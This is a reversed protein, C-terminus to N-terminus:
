RLDDEIQARAVAAERGGLRRSKLEGSVLQLRYLAIRDLDDGASGLLADILDLSHTTLIVQIGRRVAALMASASQRIAAPHLHVEPEELLVLGGSPAALELSQRLLLRIGDGALAVPQAGHAYDLYVIPQNDQTLIEIDDVDPALDKLISIAERRAGREAVSTYLQHLPVKEAAGHPDVLRVEPVDALARGEPRPPPTIVVPRGPSERRVQREVDSPFSVNAVPPSHPNGHPRVLNVKRPEPADSEITIVAGQVDHGRGRWLLWRHPAHLEPRRSLVTTLAQQPNPSAGVYLADLLTSKGSSNPGVLMVLPALDALKGNRIGRLNEVTIAKIM